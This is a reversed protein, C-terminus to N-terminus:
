QSVFDTFYITLIKGEYKMSKNAGKGDSACVAYGLQQRLPELDKPGLNATTKKRLETLVYNLAGAGMNDAKATEAVQGMALQFGLGVKLFHGDALNVTVSDVTLVPGETSPPPVTTTPAKPDPAVESVIKPAKPPQLGNAAACLSELVYTAKAEKAEKQAETLPPPKLVTMKAVVLAILLLPIIKIIMGKMGKKKTPEEVPAAEGEAVTV